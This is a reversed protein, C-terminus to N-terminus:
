VVKFLEIQGVKRYNLIRDVEDQEIERDIFLMTFNYLDNINRNEFWDLKSFELFMKGKNTIEFAKLDATFNNKNPKVNEVEYWWYEWNEFNRKKYRTLGLDETDILIFKDFKINELNNINELILIVEKLKM